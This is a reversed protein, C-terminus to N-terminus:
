MLNVPVPALKDTNLKHVKNKLNSLDDPPIKLKNLDIKDVEAKVSALDSKAALKSPDTVIANKLYAKTAYSSLDFKVNIDGGFPKYTKPFYQSMKYLTNKILGVILHTTM